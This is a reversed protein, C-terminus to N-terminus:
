AVIRTALGAVSDMKAVTGFPVRSSALAARSAARLAWGPHASSGGRLRADNRFFSASSTRRFLSLSAPTRM